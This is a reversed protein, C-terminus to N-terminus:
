KAREMLTKLSYGCLDRLVADILEKDSESGDNYRNILTKTGKFRNGDSMYEEYFLNMVSETLDHDDM